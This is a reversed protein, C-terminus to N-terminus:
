RRHLDPVRQDAAALLHDEVVVELGALLHLHVVPPDGEVPVTVARVLVQDPVAAAVHPGRM